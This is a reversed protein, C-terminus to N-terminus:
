LLNLDLMTAATQVFRFGRFPLGVLWCVEVAEVWLSRVFAVQRQTM